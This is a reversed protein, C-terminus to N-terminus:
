WTKHALDDAIRSAVTRLFQERTLNQDDDSVYPALSAALGRQLETYSATRRATWDAAPCDRPAGHRDYRKNPFTSTSTPM